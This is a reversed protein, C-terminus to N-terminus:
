ERMSLTRSSFPAGFTSSKMRSRRTAVPRLADYTNKCVNSGLWSTATRRQRSIAQSARTGFSNAVTGLSTWLNLRAAKDERTVPMEYHSARQGNLTEPVPLGDARSPSNGHLDYELHPIDM